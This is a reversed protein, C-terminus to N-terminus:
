TSLRTVKKLKYVFAYRNNTLRIVMKSFASGGNDAANYAVLTSHKNAECCGCHLRLFTEPPHSCAITYGTNYENHALLLPGHM